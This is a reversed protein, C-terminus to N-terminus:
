LRASALEWNLRNENERLAEEAQRRGTIDVLVIRCGGPESGNDGRAAMGLQIWLRAGDSRIMETEFTKEGGTNMLKRFQLYFSDKEVGGIFRALPQGILKGRELGLLQSVTLNARRILGNRDLILYGAPALNYLEFYEARSEELALQAQRLEENQMELEAQHVRLEYLLRQTEGIPAGRDGAADPDKGQLMKEARLRLEGAGRAERNKKLDAGREARIAVRWGSQPLLLM